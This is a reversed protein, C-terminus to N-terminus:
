SKVSELSKEYLVRPVLEGSIYFFGDQEFLPIYSANILLKEIPSDKMVEFHVSDLSFQKTALHEINKLLSTGVGRKQYNEDVIIQVMALHAVKKYPMLLLTSFGIPEGKYVATLSAKYRYYGIWNKAIIEREKENSCSYFQENNKQALFQKLQLIDPYKSYRIDYDKDETFSM